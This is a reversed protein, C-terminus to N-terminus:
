FHLFKEQLLTNGGSRCKTATVPLDILVANSKAAEYQDPAM